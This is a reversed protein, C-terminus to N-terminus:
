CKPVDTHEGEEASFRDSTAPAETSQGSRDLTMRHESFLRRTCEGHAERVQELRMFAAMFEQSPQTQPTPERM